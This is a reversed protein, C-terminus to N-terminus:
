SLMARSIKSDMVKRIVTPKKKLDKNNISKIIRPQILYGGNAIASYAMALQLTTCSIEQGIALSKSSQYTWNEVPRLIGSEENPLLIGTSVGFGFERSKNYLETKSLLDSIKAMGINSSFAFVDPVSITGHPEHDHLIHGNKLKYIGNECYISDQLDIRSNELAAALAVIKYTSGPEYSDGIVRNRYNSNNSEHYQNPNFDPVSSMALIDGTYPNVIIGNASEAGSQELGRKLERVLISQLELDITLTINKGPPIDVNNYKIKQNDLVQHEVYLTEGSLIDNFYNEIGSSTKEKKSFFGIFTATLNDYPYFRKQSSVYRLGNLEKISDLINKCYIEEVNKEIVVYHNKNKLINLYYQIDKKFTKSFISAISQKDFKESTNVWFDFRTINDALEINNVDYIKGRDGEENKILITEQDLIEKYKDYNIIQISFIRVLLIINIIIVSSALVRIENRYNNYLSASM